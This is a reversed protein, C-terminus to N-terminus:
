GGGATAEVRKDNWIATIGDIDHPGADRVDM